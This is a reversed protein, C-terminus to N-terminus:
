VGQCHTGPHRGGTGVTQKDMAPRAGALTKVGSHERPLTGLVAEHM